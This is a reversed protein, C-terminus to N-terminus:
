AAERFSGLVESCSRCSFNICLGFHESQASVAGPASGVGGCPVAQHSLDVQGGETLLFVDRLAGHRLMSLV